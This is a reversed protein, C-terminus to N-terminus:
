IFLPLTQFCGPCLHKQQQPTSNSVRRAGEKLRRMSLKRSWFNESGRIKQM